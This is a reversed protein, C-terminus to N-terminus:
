QDIQGSNNNTSQNEPPRIMKRMIIQFEKLTVRGDGDNDMEQIINDIVDIRDDGGHDNVLDTFIDRFEQYSISGSDDLDIKKFANKLREDSLIKNMDLAAAQFEMYSIRGEGDADIMKFIKIAENKANTMGIKKLGDMLEDLSLSGDNSTDM